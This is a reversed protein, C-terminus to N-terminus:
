QVVGGHRTSLRRMAQPLHGALVLPSHEYYSGWAQAERGLSAPDAAGLTLPAVGLRVLMARLEAGTFDFPLM